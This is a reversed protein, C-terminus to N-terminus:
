AEKLKKYIKAYKSPSTQKVRPNEKYYTRLRCKASCHRQWSKTPEFEKKCNSCRM